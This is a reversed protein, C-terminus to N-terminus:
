KFLLYHLKVSVFFLLYQINAPVHLLLLLGHSKGLQDGVLQAPANPPSPSHFGGWPKPTSPNQPNLEADVRGSAM